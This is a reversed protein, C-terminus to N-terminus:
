TLEPAAKWDLPVERFFKALAIAPKDDPWAVYLDFAIEEAHKDILLPARAKLLRAAQTLWENM